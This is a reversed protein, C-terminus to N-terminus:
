TSPPIPSKRAKKNGAKATINMKKITPASLAEKSCSRSAPVNRRRKVAGIGRQVTM